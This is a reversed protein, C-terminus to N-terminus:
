NNNPRAFRKLIRNLREKDEGKVKSMLRKLLEAEEKSLTESEETLLTESEETMNSLGYLQDWKRGIKIISGPLFAIVIILLILNISFLVIIWFKASRKM